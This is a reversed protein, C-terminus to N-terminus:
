FEKMQRKAFLYLKREFFYQEEIKTKFQVNVVSTDFGDRLAKAGDFTHPWFLIEKEAGHIKYYRRMKFWM